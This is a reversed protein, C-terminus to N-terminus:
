VWLAGESGEVLCQLDKVCNKYHEWLVQPGVGLSLLAMLIQRNITCPMVRAVM